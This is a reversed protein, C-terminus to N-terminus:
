QQQVNVELSEAGGEDGKVAKMRTYLRRLHKEYEGNRLGAHNREFPRGLLLSLTETFETFKPDETLTEKSYFEMVAIIKPGIFVPFAFGSQLSNKQTIDFGPFNSNKKLDKIALSKKEVLVRGPLGIGPRFDTAEIKEKFEKFGEWDEFFWLKSSRLLDEDGKKIYVHAVPWGKFKCIKNMTKKLVEEVADTSNSLISIDKLLTLYTPEMKLLRYANKIKESEEQERSLKIQAQSFVAVVWIIFISLLRNIWIASDNESVYLGKLTLVTGVTAGVTILLSDKAMFGILALIVYAEGVFMGQPLQDEMFSIILACVVVAFVYRASSKFPLSSLLTKNM